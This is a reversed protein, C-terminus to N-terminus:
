TGLLTGTIGSGDYVLLHDCCSETSFATFTVTVLNTNIDPCITTTINESNSYSGNSGGSDVYNGGCVPPLAQTTATAKVASWSSSDTGSCIAKAYFDYCTTPTLGTITYPNTPAAVWGTTSSTPAASGCPVAIVEWASATGGGPNQPQTWSLVATTSLVSNAALATPATCTPAPACTINAIWGTSTISSDSNFVFTM